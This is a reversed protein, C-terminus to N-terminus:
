ESLNRRFSLVISLARRKESFLAEPKAVNLLDARGQLSFGLIGQPLRYGLELRFLGSLLGAKRYGAAELTIQQDTLTDTVFGKNRGTLGPALGAAASLGLKQDPFFEYGALVPVEFRDFRNYQVGETRIVTTVPADSFVQEETGDAHIIIQVLQNHKIETVTTETSFSRRDTSRAWGLGAQLFWHPSLHHRLTIGASFIDLTEEEGSRLGLWAADSGSRDAFQLGYGLEVGPLWRPHKKAHKTFNVFSNFHQFDIKQGPVLVQPVIGPLLSTERNQSRFPANPETSVAEKNEAPLSGTSSPQVTRIIDSLSNAPYKESVSPHLTNSRDTGAVTKPREASGSAQDTRSGPSLASLQLEPSVPERASAATETAPLGVPYTPSTTAYETVRGASQHRSVEKWQRFGLGAGVVVGWFLLFFIRRRRRERRRQQLRTWANELDLGPVERRVRTRLFAEFWDNRSM